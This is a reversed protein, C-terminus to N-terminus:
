RATRGRGIGGPSPVCTAGVSQWEAFPHEWSELPGSCRQSVIGWTRSRVINEVAHEQRIISALQETRPESPFFRASYPDLREDVVKEDHRRKEAERAASDPDDPDPSTAVATCYSIVQSRAQWTPFLVKDKFTQCSTANIPRSLPRLTLHSTSSPDFGAKSPAVLANLHQTITDDVSSRSLRM